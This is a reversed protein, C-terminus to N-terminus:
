EGTAAWAADIELTLRVLLEIFDPHDGVTPVRAFELGLAEARAKAEVDLDYLVEVHDCLFGIPVVVVGEAGDRAAEALADLLDPELWPTRPDGSRSQYAVRWDDTGFLAAVGAASATVEQAYDCGEAMALPLSHATFLLRRGAPWAGSGFGTATEIRDAVAGLFLPDSHWPRPYRVALSVGATAIAREVDLQYREWSTPSRHPALILGAARRHGREAMKAVTDALFPHWNRYGVFAGIRHGRAALRQWLRRMQRLTHDHYPSRGGIAEYHHAVEELREEPVNRGRVVQRLFPRIEERSTPGGFGILLVSDITLSM